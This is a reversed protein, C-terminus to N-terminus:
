RHAGQVQLAQAPAPQPRSPGAPAPQPQSPGAPHRLVSHLPGAAPVLHATCRHSFVSLPRPTCPSTQPRLPLHAPAPPSRPHLSLDPLVPPSRCACSSTQSHLPLDAPTNRATTVPHLPTDELSIDTPTSDMETRGSLSRLLPGKAWHGGQGLRPGMRSPM